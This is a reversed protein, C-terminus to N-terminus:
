SAWLRFDIKVPLLGVEYAVAVLATRNPVRYRSLLRSLHYSVAQKSYHLEAAIESSSQGDALRRLIERELGSVKDDEGDAVEDDDVAEASGLVAAVMEHTAVLAYKAFRLARAADLSQEVAAIQRETADVVTRTIGVMGSRSLGLEELRCSVARLETLTVDDLSRGALCARRMRPWLDLFAEIIVEDVAQATAPPTSRRAVGRVKAM